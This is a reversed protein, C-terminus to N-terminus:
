IANGFYQNELEKIMSDLKEAYSEKPLNRVLLSIERAGPWFNDGRQSSIKEYNEYLCALLVVDSISQGRAHAKRRFGETRYGFIELMQNWKSLAPYVQGSEIRRLGMVNFGHDTVAAIAEMSAFPPISPKAETDTVIALSASRKRFDINSLSVIGSPESHNKLRLLLAFRTGDSLSNFFSVQNEPTNPFVGHDTYKTNSQSNFWSYWNSTEALVKTPVILDITEGSYFVDAKSIKM